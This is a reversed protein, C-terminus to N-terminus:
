CEKKKSDTDKTRYNKLEKLLHLFTLGVSVLNKLRLASSRSTEEAGLVGVEVYSSGSKLLKILIEGQFGFGRSTVHLPRILESKHVPLGNYYRIRYGFVINLLNSYCKSLVFRGPSKIKWLNKMYPIVIDAEGIKGLIAPLNSAPLGGDGCLMMIYDLKAERVGELYAAGLGINKEHHLVRMHPLENSLADMIEGTKDTSGDNILIIEFTDLLADVRTWIDRVIGEVVDEENLAPVVFSVSQQIAKTM